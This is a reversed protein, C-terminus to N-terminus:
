ATLRRQLLFWAGAMLVAIGAFSLQLQWLPLAVGDQQGADESTQGLQETTLGFGDSVDAIVAATAQPLALAEDQQVGARSDEGTTIADSGAFGSETELDKPEPIQDPSLSSNTTDDPVPQPGDASGPPAIPEASEFETGDAFPPDPTGLPLAAVITPTSDAVPESMRSSEADATNAPDFAEEIGQPSGPDGTPGTAALMDESSGSSGTFSVNPSDGSQRVVDALNGVALLGVAAAAVIAFVAPALALKPRRARVQVPAEALAFSRPAKAPEVSRLLSVTQRMSELDEMLSPNDVARRQLEANELETARGEIYAASTDDITEKRRFLRLPNFM